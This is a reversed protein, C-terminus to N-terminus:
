HTWSVVGPRGRVEAVFQERDLVRATPAEADEIRVLRGDLRVTAAAGPHPRASIVVAKGLSRLERALACGAARTREDILILFDAPPRLPAPAVALVREVGIAFGTAPCDVGFRGVLRDYRGGGLLPYGTGPAYAEFVAGTYYAFDRVLSLDVAVRGPPGYAAVAELITVLRELAARGRATRAFPRARAVAEPGHLDPLTRLLLAVAPDSPTEEIGAFQKGALRLRLIEREEEPVGALVDDLFELDGVHVVPDPVGARSLSELALAIVEADADAGAEGLLEVGAQTFERLRGGGADQGHFVAAVYSIRLPRVGEPLLRTAALRAIPVTMEPRLVLLEGGAGVLKLLRDQVGPGAGALFTELFELTPTRVERYGWRRFEERLDRLLAARREADAPLLDRTGEPVQRWRSSPQGWHM